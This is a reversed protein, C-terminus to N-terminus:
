LIIEILSCVFKLEVFWFLGHDDCYCNNDDTREDQNNEETEKEDNSM